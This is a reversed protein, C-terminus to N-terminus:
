RTYPPFWPTYEGRLNVEKKGGKYQVTMSGSKIIIRNGELHYNIISTSSERNNGNIQTIFRKGEREQLEFNFFPFIPKPKDTGGFETSQITLEYENRLQFIIRFPYEQTQEKYWARGALMFELDDKIASQKFYQKFSVISCTFSQQTPKLSSHAGGMFDKSNGGYAHCAQAIKQNGSEAFSTLSCSLLLLVIQKAHNCKM